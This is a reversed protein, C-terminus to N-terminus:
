DAGSWLARSDKGLVAFAARRLARAAARPDSFSGRCRVVLGDSACSAGSEARASALM